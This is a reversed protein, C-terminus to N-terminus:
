NLFSKESQISPKEDIWGKWAIDDNVLYINRGNNKEKTFIPVVKNGKKDTDICLENIARQIQPPKMELNKGIESYSIGYIKGNWDLKSLLFLAVRLTSLTSVRDKDTLVKTGTDYMKYRWKKDRLHRIKDEEELSLRLNKGKYDHPVVIEAELITNTKGPQNRRPDPNKSQIKMKIKTNKAV